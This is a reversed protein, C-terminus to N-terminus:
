GASGIPWQLDAQGILPSKSGVEDKETFTRHLREESFLVPGAAAGGYKASHHM